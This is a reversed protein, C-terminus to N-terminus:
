FVWLFEAFKEMHLIYVGGWKHKEGMIGLSRILENLAPLHLIQLMQSLNFVKFEWWMKEELFYKIIILYKKNINTM